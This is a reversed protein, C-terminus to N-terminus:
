PLREVRVSDLYLHFGSSEPNKGLVSFRVLKQGPLAVDVSPLSFEEFESSSAYTDYAESNTWPGAPDDAFAVQLRAGDEARRVRVSIRYSGSEAIPVVYTVFQGSADTAEYATGAGRAYGDPATVVTHSGPGSDLVRLLETQWVENAEFAGLDAVAIGDGDGDVVREFMMWPPPAPRPDSIAIWSDRQQDETADSLAADIAPSGVRLPHLPLNSTGGMPMLPALLADSVDFRCPEDGVQSPAPFGPAVHLLSGLDCEFMGGQWDGDIDDEDTEVATNNTVISTLVTVDQAHCEIQADFDIGGGVSTATNYAITSNTIFLYTATCSGFRAYVGGGSAARNGSITSTAIKQTSWGGGVYVGGGSDESSNNVIASSGVYLTAGSGESFIGGGPAPSRNDDVLSSLVSLTTSDGADHDCGLEPLCYAAIGGRAFGTVRTRRMELWGSTVCAGTLSLTADQTLTIDELEVDAGAAFAHFLCNAGPGEDRAAFGPAADITARESGDATALSVATDIALTRTVPYRGGARLVIRDAGNGATCEDVARDTNAARIAELLDCRGDRAETAVEGTETDVVIVAGGASQGSSGASAAGGSGGGGTPSSPTGGTSDNPAQAGPESGCGVSSAVCAALL